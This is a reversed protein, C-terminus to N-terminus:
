QRMDYNKHPDINQLGLEHYMIRIGTLVQGDCSVPAMFVIAIHYTSIMFIRPSFIGRMANTM